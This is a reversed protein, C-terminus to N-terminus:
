KAQHGAAAGGPVQDPVVAAARAKVVSFVDAASLVSIAVRDDFLEIRLIKDARTLSVSAPILAALTQIVTTPDLPSPARREITMRWTEHAGIRDGLRSVAQKMSDLDPPTWADVPVWKLTYRFAQPSQRYTKDLERVVWRPALSTRVELMGRVGTPIVLPAEDGLARLRSLIERRAPGPARSYCSVLLSSDDV